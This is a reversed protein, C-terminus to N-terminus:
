YGCHHVSHRRAAVISFNKNNAPLAWGISSGVGGSLTAQSCFSTGTVSPSLGLSLLNKIFHSCQAAMARKANVLKYLLPFFGPLNSNNHKHQKCRQRLRCGYLHGLVSTHPRDSHCPQIHWPCSSGGSRKVSAVHFAKVKHRGLELM